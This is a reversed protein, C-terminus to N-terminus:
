RVKGRKRRKASTQARRQERLRRFYEPDICTARHPQFDVYNVPMATGLPTRYWTIKAFCRPAGCQGHEIFRYGAAAMDDHSAHRWEGGVNTRRTPNLRLHRLSSRFVEFFSPASPGRSLVGRPYITLAATDTKCFAYNALKRGDCALCVDGAVADRIAGDGLTEDIKTREDSM